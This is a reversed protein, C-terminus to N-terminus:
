WVGRRGPTRLNTEVQAPQSITSVMSAVAARGRQLVVPGTQLYRFGFLLGGLLTLGVELTNRFVIHVYAFAVASALLIAWDPGFLNRYREFVFARYVIGQPYVSLIPYLVMVPGWFRPNTRPLNLFLDPAFHLVLSIGAAAAIAFLGLISRLHPGLAGAGGLREPGFGPEHLLIFLCYTTLVWLAPIAPIRHRTFAFVTPAVFFLVLFETAHVAVLALM